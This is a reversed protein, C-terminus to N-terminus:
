YFLHYIFSVVPDIDPGYVISAGLGGTITIAVLAALVILTKVPAFLVIGALQQKLKWVAAFIAGRRTAWDGWGHKAFYRVTYAALLVLFLAVTTVAFMEHTDILAPAIRGSIADSAMDGTILTPVTSLMGLSLLFLKASNWWSVNRCFRAPVLEMLGYVVLLGIPFHVFLPHINM